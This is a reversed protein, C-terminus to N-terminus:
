KFVDNSLTIRASRLQCHCFYKQGHLGGLPHDAVRSSETQGSNVECKVKRLMFVRGEGGGRSIM